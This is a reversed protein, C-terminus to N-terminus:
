TRPLLDSMWALLPEATYRDGTFPPLEAASAQTATSIRARAELPTIERFTTEPDGHAQLHELAAPLPSSLIQVDDLLGDPEITVLATLEYEEALRTGILMEVPGAGDAPNHPSEIAREVPTAQHLETLWGPLAHGQELAAQHAQQRLRDDGALTAHTILLAAAERQQLLTEILEQESAAGRPLAQGDAGHAPHLLQGAMGLLAIPEADLAGAVENALDPQEDLAVAVGRLLLNRDIRGPGPPSPPTM